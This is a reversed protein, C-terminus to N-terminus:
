AAILNATTSQLKRLEECIKMPKDFAVASCFREEDYLNDDARVVTVPIDRKRLNEISILLMLKQGPQFERDTFFHAGVESLDSCVCFATQNDAQNDVLTFQINESNGCQLRVSERANNNM